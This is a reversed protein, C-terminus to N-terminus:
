ASRAGYRMRSLTETMKRLPADFDKGAKWKEFPVADFESLLKQTM